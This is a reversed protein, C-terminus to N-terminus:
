LAIVKTHPDENFYRICDAEDVDARNGLSVFVSVGLREESAWDMLAAGVTGSQSIFAMGGKRTLLPWSACLNHHPNNVGQCNPGIVRLGYRRATHALDEQLKAGEEGAEAFGGTVVVASKVGAAGCQDIVGPVAKAPVIVVALDPPPTIDSIQKYVALGLIQDAKPNVPYIPGAFGAHILNYTIDYGLKGATPSAGIVAVSQPKFVANLQHILDM